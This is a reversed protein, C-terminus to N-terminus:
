LPCDGPCLYRNELMSCVTDGCHPVLPDCTAGPVCTPACRSWCDPDACGMLTDGDDDVDGLICLEPTAVLDRSELAWTDNPTNVLYGRSSFSLMRHEVAHYALTSRPGSSGVATRQSWTTGDWEWIDETLAAGARGSFLVIRQRDPDYTMVADTLPPPSTAPMLPTWNTGDWEWTTVAVPGMSGGGFLVIRERLEDYAMAAATRAAPKTTPHKETWTTGNWAWTDDRAQTDFGGFLITENRAADFAMAGKMRAPPRVTPTVNQWVLGNWEYTDDLTSAGQGSFIVTRGRKSDYAMSFETRAPPPTLGLAASSWSGDSWVWTDSLLLNQPTRGGFLVIQGNHSDYVMKHGTRAVPSISPATRQEWDGTFVWSDSRVGAGDEGGFLVIHQQDVDFSMTTDSRYAPNANSHQTWAAAVGNWKFTSNNVFGVLQNNVDDYAFADFDPSAAPTVTSKTWATGNWEWTESQGYLVVLDRTADYTMSGHLPMALPIDTPTTHQTWTTGDYTWTENLRNIQDVGGYMVIQNRARDFVVKAHYRPPPSTAPTKETWTIGDWEWTDGYIATAAFGGFLVVRQRNGDNAMGAYARPPPSRGPLLRKWSLGNWAWTEDLFSTSAGGFAITDNRNFDFAMAHGTRGSIPQPTVDIWSLTEQTCTSSCGDNSLGPVGSDCTENNIADVVGNGCTENSTCDASCDDGAANNGDDCTEGIDVLRNGCEDPFCVGDHCTSTDGCRESATCGVQSEDVCFNTPVDYIRVSACVKGSPCEVGGGCPVANSEVCACLLVVWLGRM